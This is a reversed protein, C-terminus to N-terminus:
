LLLADRPLRIQDPARERVARAHEFPRKSQRYPCRYLGIGDAGNEMAEETDEVRGVNALV